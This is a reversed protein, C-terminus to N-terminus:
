TRSSLNEFTISKKKAAESVRDSFVKKEIERAYERQDAIESVAQKIESTIKEKQDRNM